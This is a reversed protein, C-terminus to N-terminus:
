LVVGARDSVLCAEFAITVGGGDQTKNEAEGEKAPNMKLNCLPFLCKVSYLRSLGAHPPYWGM